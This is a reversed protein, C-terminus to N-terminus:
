KNLKAFVRDMTTSARKQSYLNIERKEVNAEPSHVIEKAEEQSSLEEPADKAEMPEIMELLQEYLARFEAIAKSLEEKTAFKEEEEEPAEEQPAEEQPAEEEEALLEETVNVEEKLEVEKESKVAEETESSLLVSKFKEIIETAKM